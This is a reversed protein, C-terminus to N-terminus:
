VKRTKRWVIAYIYDYQTSLYGIKHKLIVDGHKESSFKVILVKDEDSMTNYIHKEFNIRSDIETFSIGNQLIKEPGSYVDYFEIFADDDSDAGIFDISYQFPRAKKKSVLEQGGDDNGNVLHKSAVYGLSIADVEDQSISDLFPLAKILKDRVAKKQNDTGFPVKDPALFERKWRMNNVEYHKIYDFTPENEIIMEEIFSRLMFLNKIASKNAITPEEYYIQSIFRNRLLIDKVFNKLRLKYRVPEEQKERTASITYMIAGDSERIIALGTNSTAGDIALLAYNTVALNEFTITNLGYSLDSNQIPQKISIKM